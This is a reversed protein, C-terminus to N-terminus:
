KARGFWRFLMAIDFKASAQKCHSMQHDVFHASEAEITDRGCVVM